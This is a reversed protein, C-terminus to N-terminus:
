QDLLDVLGIECDEALKVRSYSRKVRTLALGTILVTESRHQANEKHGRHAM